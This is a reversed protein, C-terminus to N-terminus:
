PRGAEARHRAAQEALHRLLRAEAEAASHEACRRREAGGRRELVVSRRGCGDVTCPGLPEFVVGAEEMAAGSRLRDRHSWPLLGANEM